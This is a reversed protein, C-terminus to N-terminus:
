IEQGFQLLYGSNDRIAFERMGYEFDELPYEVQCRDKLRLWLSDADDTKFYLSGTMMPKTFPLHRNPLTFMVEVGDLNMCAWEEFSSICQFGLIERYFEIAPEIATVTLMPAVGLLTMAAEGSFQHTKRIQKFTAKSDV